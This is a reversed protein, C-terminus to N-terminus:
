VTKLAADVVAAYNDLAQRRLTAPDATEGYSAPPSGARRPRKPRKARGARTGIALAALLEAVIALALPAWASSRALAAVDDAIGFDQALLELAEVVRRRPGVDM